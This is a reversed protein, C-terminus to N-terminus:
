DSRLAVTPDLGAAKRAPIWCAVGTVAFVVTVVVAWTTPDGVGVGYVVSNLVSAALASLGAGLVIGAGALRLGDAMITRAVEGAAAGIAMRIGIERTRRSVEYAILGYLGVMASLLALVGFSGLLILLFKTPALAEDLYDQLPRVDHIPLLPDISRVVDRVASAIVAPEATRVVFSVDRSAEQRYPVYLTERGDAQLTESRIHEVVGVIRGQVPRGDLPFGIIAGVASRDPSIRRALLEDVVVVRREESLDEESTFSRGDLLRTGIAEFYGSTVM